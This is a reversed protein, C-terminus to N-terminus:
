LPYFQYHNYRNFVVTQLHLNVTANDSIDKTIPKVNKIWGDPQALQYNVNDFIIKGGCSTNEFAQGLEYRMTLIDRQTRRYGIIIRQGQENLHYDGNALTDYVPLDSRRYIEFVIPHNASDKVFPLNFQRGYLKRHNAYQYVTNGNEDVGLIQNYYLTDTFVEDTEVNRLELTLEPAASPTCIDEDLCSVAFACGLFLAFRPIGFKM